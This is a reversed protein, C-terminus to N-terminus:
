RAGATGGLIRVLGVRAASRQEAADPYRRAGASKARRSVTRTRWATGCAVERIAIRGIRHNGSLFELSPAGARRHWLCIPKFSGRELREFEHGRESEHVRESEHSLCAM